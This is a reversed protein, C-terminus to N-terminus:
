KGSIDIFVREDPLVLGLRARAIYEKYDDTNYLQKANDLQDGVKQANAISMNLDNIQGDYANLTVQQASFRWITGIVIVLLLMRRLIKFSRKRKQERTMKVAHRDAM